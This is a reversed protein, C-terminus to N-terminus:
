ESAKMKNVFRNVVEIRETLCVKWSMNRMRRILEMTLLVIKSRDCMACRREIVKENSIRKEYFSYMVEDVKDEDNEIGETNVAKKKRVWDETDLM